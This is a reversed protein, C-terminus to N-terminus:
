KLWMPVVSAALLAGLTGNVVYWQRKTRLYKALLLGAVCWISLSLASASGFASGLLMALQLPHAALASFSAAAGTSMAWAKPNMLLLGAGGLFGVPSALDMQLNHPGSRGIKWALWLMYGTGAVKMAAQLSPAAMLLGSLGAAAVAALTTLGASIGALLPISRRFGFQAGSATALTTAGGPTITSTLVFLALPLISAAAM